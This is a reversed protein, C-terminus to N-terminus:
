TWDASTQQHHVHAAGYSCRAAGQQWGPLITQQCGRSVTSRQQQQQQQLTSGDEPRVAVAGRGGHRLVAENGVGGAHELALNPSDGM